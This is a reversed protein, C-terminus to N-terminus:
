RTRKTEATAARRRLFVRVLIAYVTADLGSRVDEFTGNERGRAVSTFRVNVIASVRVILVDIWRTVEKM